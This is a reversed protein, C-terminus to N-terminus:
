SISSGSRLAELQWRRGCYGARFELSNLWQSSEKESSNSLSVLWILPQCNGSISVWETKQEEAAPQAAAADFSAVLQGIFATAFANLEEPQIKNDHNQDISRFVGDVYEDTIPVRIHYAGFFNELFQRLERRDLWANGDSDYQSFYKQVEAHLQENNSNFNQLQQHAAEFEGAAFEARNVQM